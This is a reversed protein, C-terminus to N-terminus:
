CELKDVNRKSKYSFICVHACRVIHGQGAILGKVMLRLDKMFKVGPLLQFETFSM